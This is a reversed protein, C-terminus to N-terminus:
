PDSPAASMSPTLGVVNIDLSLARPSRSWLMRGRRRRLRGYCRQQFRSSGSPRTIPCDVGSEHKAARKDVEVVELLLALM